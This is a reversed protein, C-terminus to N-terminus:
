LPRKRQGGNSTKFKREQVSTRLQGVGQRGEEKKAARDLHLSHFGEPVQQPPPGKQESNAEQPIAQEEGVLMGRRGALGM